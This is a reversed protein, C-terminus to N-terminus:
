RHKIILDLVEQCYEHNAAYRSRLYIYLETCSQLFFAKAFPRVNEDADQLISEKITLGDLCSERYSGLYSSSDYKIRYHYPCQPVAVIRTANKILHYNMLLDEFHSISIACLESILEDSFLSRKFLKNCPSWMEVHERSLLLQLANKRDLLTESHSTRYTTTRGDPFHQQYGCLVVDARLRQAASILKEYMDADMTDDADIFGIWKGAAHQVGCLRAQMTGCHPLFLAKIREFEEEYKAILQRSGDSSGDDVLIIEMDVFTQSLLSEICRSLRTEENFVPIIVTLLNEQPKYQM